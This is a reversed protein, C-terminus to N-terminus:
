EEARKNLCKITEMVSVIHYAIADVAYIYEPNDRKIVNGLPLIYKETEDMYEDMKAASFSGAMTSINNCRDLMKVLSAKTNNVMQDYYEKKAAAKSMGEPKSFTLLKVIEQIEKSVPMDEAKAGTDEVVDHLLIASLIEDDTIGLAYAHCAMTLPHNIYAVREDSFLNKKRFQGEHQKKMYPLAVSLNVLKEERGLKEIRAFMENEEFIRARIDM